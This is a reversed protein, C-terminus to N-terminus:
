HAVEYTVTVNVRWSAQGPGGYWAFPPQVNINHVPGLKLGAGAASAEALLKAQQTAQQVAASLSAADPMAGEGGGKMYTNVSTAGAKIAIELVKALQETGSTEVQLNEDINYGQITPQGGVPPMPIPKTSEPGPMPQAPAGYIPYINYNQMQIATAPVGSQILAARLADVSAQVTEIAKAPDGNIQQHVGVNLMMGQATASTGTQGVGTASIFHQAATAAGAEGPTVPTPLGPDAMAVASALLLTAVVILATLRLRARKM